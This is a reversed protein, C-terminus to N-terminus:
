KARFKLSVGKQGHGGDQGDVNGSGDAGHEGDKARMSECTNSEQSNCEKTDCATMSVSSVLLLGFLMTSVIRSKMKLGKNKKAMKDMVEKGWLAQVVAAVMVAMELM